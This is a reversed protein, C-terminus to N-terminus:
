RRPNSSSGGVDVRGVEAHSRGCVDSGAPQSESALPSPASGTSSAGPVRGASPTAGIAGRSSSCDCRCGRATAPEGVPQEFQGGGPRIVCGGTATRSRSSSSVPARSTGSGPDPCVQRRKSVRIAILRSSTARPRSASAWRSATAMRRSAPPVPAFSRRRRPTHAASKSPLRISARRVAIAPHQPTLPGPAGAGPQEVPRQHGGAAVAGGAEEDDIQSRWAHLGIGRGPGCGGEGVRRRPRNAEVIDLHGGRVRDARRPEVRVARTRARIPRHRPPM